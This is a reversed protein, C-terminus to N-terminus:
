NSATVCPSVLPQCARVGLKCRCIQLQGPRWARSVGALRFSAGDRNRSVCGLARSADARIATARARIRRARPVPNFQVPSHKLQVLAPKIRVPTANTPLVKSQARLRNRNPSKASCSFTKGGLQGLRSFIKGSHFVTKGWAQRHAARLCASKTM